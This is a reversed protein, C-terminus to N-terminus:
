VLMSIDDFESATEDLFLTLKFNKPPTVHQLHTVMYDWERRFTYGTPNTFLNPLLLMDVDKNANHLAEVLRLTSAPTGFELGGAILLLKGELSEAYEEIFKCKTDASFTSLGYYPEVIAPLHFRIDTFVTFAAAKYFDQRKFFGYICANLADMGTVGVRNIDMYPYKKSLQTICAVHDDYDNTGAPDGYKHDQFAKGRLPGGRGGLSVVIFGLAAMSLCSQYGVGFVSNNTFSGIPMQTFGRDNCAYDIIPYSKEPSFNFPRFITAYIDTKGDAAKTKVPEPRQWGEPMDSLDATELLLIEEGNRNLLISEPVTDVRSRTAVIYQGDPSVGYVDDNDLGRSDRIFISVGLTSRPGFVTYEFNDTAIPSLEGSDLNLKCLDCYYPNIRKNRGSTQILVERRSADYHLINRVVWDGDDMSSKIGTLPHKEKGTLTDYLYLHGWGNRESFWILENTEPLPLFIPIDESTHGMKVFTNSEEEFLQRTEGTEIDFLILCVRKGGRAEDIFLVQRNNTSWWGRKESFFRGYISTIPLPDYNPMQIEESSIDIIKLHYLGIDKDGPYAIRETSAKPHLSGDFPAFRIRPRETINRYDMQVTFIRNSDPSWVAQIDTESIHTACAYKCQKDGDNTLAKEEGTLIDRIWLNNERTFASKKGDPSMLEKIPQFFVKKGDPSGVGKKPKKIESCALTDLDFAWHKQFAIFHVQKELLSIEIIKIPLDKYNITKGIKEQLASALIKHDFAQENSLKQPSVLRFQKGEKTKKLYWFQSGNDVWHPFVADNRQPNNFIVAAQDYCKKIDDFKESM